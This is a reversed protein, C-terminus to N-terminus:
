DAAQGSGCNSVVNVRKVPLESAGSAFVVPEPLCEVFEISSGHAKLSVSILVCM